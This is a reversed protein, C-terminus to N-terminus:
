KKKANKEEYGVQEWPIVYCRRAWNEYLGSLEAVKKPYESSLNHQETRDKSINYLEKEGKYGAVVLKWDGKRAMYNGEHEVCILREKSKKGEIVPLLSKGEMPLVPHGNYSLPYTAGSVDVCTAMLDSIHLPRSDVSGKNRVREPWHIISPSSIGGEHTFHKYLTWPTCGVNAWGTGYHMYTGPLGMRDLEEGKHLIFKLGTGGDFGNETWEACGGNDSLFIILTNEYIGNNKLYETVRGIERDMIDVMAAFVAMRRALDLQKETSLTNWAPIQYTTDAMVSEPVDGRPSLDYDAELIGLQKMRKFREDRIVDWGRKYYDFYKDTDEKPAHLPFHPANYALYLFFPSRKEVAMNMFDLAYDTIARTSYFEGEWYERLPRDKPLRTYKSIDWFSTFGGLLGYFEDFGREVPSQAGLHWKGSMFTMYGATKLVEPITVNNDNRFGDYGELGKKRDGTMHGVGAQHPYLGTLLAARSPCSRASNYLQTLRIGSQALNDINPTRIESGYCGIDSYGLDDALIIIINPKSAERAVLSLQSFFLAPVAAKLIRTNQM